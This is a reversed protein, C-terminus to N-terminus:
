KENEYEQLTRVYRGINEFIYKPARRVQETKRIEHNECLNEWAEIFKSM